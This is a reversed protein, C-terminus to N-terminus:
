TCTLQTLWRLYNVRLNIGTGTRMGCGPARGRGAKVGFIGTGSKGWGLNICVRFFVALFGQFEAM